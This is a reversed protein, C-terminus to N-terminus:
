RFENGRVVAQAQDNAAVSIGGFTDFVNNILQISGSGNATVDIAASAASGLGRIDCNAIVLSGSFGAASRIQFGNGNIACRGSATGSYSVTQSGSLVVDAALSFVPGSSVPPSDVVVTVPASTVTGHGSTSIQATVAYTGTPVNTATFAFYGNQASSGTYT